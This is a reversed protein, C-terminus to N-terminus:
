FKGFGPGVPSLYEIGHEGTGQDNYVQQIRAFQGWIDPGIEIGDADYWIGGWKKLMQLYLSSRSM